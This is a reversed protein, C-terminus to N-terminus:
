KQEEKDLGVITRGYMQLMSNVLAVAESPKCDGEVILRKKANICKTVLTDIDIDAPHIVSKPYLSEEAETGPIERDWCATCMAYSLGNNKCNEPTSLYGYESPCGMCGGGYNSDVRDPHEKKLKERCTM